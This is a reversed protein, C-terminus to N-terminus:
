EKRSVRRGGSGDYGDVGHLAVGGFRETDTRRLTSRDYLPELDLCSRLADVFAAHDGYRM